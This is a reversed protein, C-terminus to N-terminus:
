NNLYVLYYLVPWVLVVFFWFYKVAANFANKNKNFYILAGTLFVLGILAHLGHAGVILYFFAGYLSSTSTLGFQILQIWEKGQLAVFLIGLVLTSIYFKNAQSLENKKESRLGLFLTLGSLLLFVSNIATSEVPLRPQGVPPWFPTSAKSVILASILGAFFMIETSIFLWMGMVQNKENVAKM